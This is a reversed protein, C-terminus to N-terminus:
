NQHPLSTDAAVLETLADLARCWADAASKPSPGYGWAYLTIAYGHIPGPHTAPLASTQGLPGESPSVQAPRLTWESRADALAIARAALTWARLQAECATFDAFLSPKAPLLDVYSGQAFDFGPLDEGDFLAAPYMWVDCKATFISSGPRNWRRLAAAIAPYQRAEPIEDIAQPRARLDIFALTGSANSWPIAVVPDDAACAITWDADM